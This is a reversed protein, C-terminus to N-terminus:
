KPRPLLISHQKLHFTVPASEILVRGQADYVAAALTHSGRDVDNLIFRTGDVPRTIPRGDLLIVLRHGQEAKLAPEIAVGVDVDRENSWIVQDEEPEIVALRSYAAVSASPAPRRSESPSPQVAEIVQPLPPEIRNADPHAEDSYSVTGDPLVRKYIDAQGGLPALGILLCVIRLLPMKGPNNAAM